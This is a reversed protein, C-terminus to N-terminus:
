FKKTIILPINIRDTYIVGDFSLVLGTSGTGIASILSVVASSLYLSVTVPVVVRGFGPVTFPADSNLEGIYSNNVLIKSYIRKVNFIEASTNKIVIRFTLVARGSQMQVGPLGDLDYVFNSIATLKRKAAFLFYAAAAAAGVFLASKGSM